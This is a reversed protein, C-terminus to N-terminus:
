WREWSVQKAVELPSQKSWIQSYFVKDHQFRMEDILHHQSVTVEREQASCNLICRDCRFYGSYESVKAIVMNRTDGFISIVFSWRPQSIRHIHLLFIHKTWMLLKNEQYDLEDWEVKRGCNDSFCADMWLIRCARVWIELCQLHYWSLGLIENSRTTDRFIGEPVFHFCKLVCYNYISAYSPTSAYTNQVDTIVKWM